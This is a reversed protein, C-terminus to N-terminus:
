YQCGTLESLRKFSQVTEYKKGDIIWTPRTKLTQDIQYNVYKFSKGFMAKQANTYKCWDEGYMVAGKENLCKAFGDYKGPSFLGYGILSIVILLGIGSSWLINRKRKRKRERELTFKEERLQHEEQERRQEEPSKKPSYQM